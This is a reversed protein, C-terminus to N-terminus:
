GGKSCSRSMPTAATGGPYFRTSGNTTIEALLWNGDQGPAKRGGRVRLPPALTGRQVSHPGPLGPQRSLEAPVWGM